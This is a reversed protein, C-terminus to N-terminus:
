VISAVAPETFKEDDSVVSFTVFLKTSALETTIKVLPVATDAFLFM